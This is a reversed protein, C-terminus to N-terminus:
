GGRGKKSIRQDYEMAREWALEFLSSLVQAMTKNYIKAGAPENDQATFLAIMDGIINLECHAPFKKHPVLHTIRLEGKDRLKYNKANETDPQISRVKMGAAVRKKTYKKWDTTPNTIHYENLGFCLQEKTPEELTEYILEKVAEIGQYYKIKGKVEM